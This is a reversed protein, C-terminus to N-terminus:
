TIKSFYIIIRKWQQENKESTCGALGVIQRHRSM